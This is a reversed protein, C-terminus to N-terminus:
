RLRTLAALVSSALLRAQYSRVFSAVDECKDPSGSIYGALLHVAKEPSRLGVSVARALSYLPHYGLARMGRGWYHYRLASAATRRQTWTVLDRYVKVGLGMSLAKYVLWAEFGWNEPYAYGVDRFWPTLVVRGSGRVDIEKGVREGAIVGSAVVVGDRRMRRTIERLYSPPLLHDAGLIVTYDTDVEALQRLGLNIVRAMHPTGALGPGRARGTRVVVAGHSEAVEATRDTSGDDVVVVEAIEVGRQRLLLSLTLPLRREENRAPVVVGVRAM